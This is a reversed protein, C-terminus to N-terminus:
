LSNQNLGKRLNKIGNEMGAESSYTNSTGVFSGNKIKLSIVFKGQLNTQREFIPNSITQQLTNKAEKESKFSISQLLSHGSKSKINFQFVGESNKVIEVM